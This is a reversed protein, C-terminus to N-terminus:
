CFNFEWVIKTLKNEKFSLNVYGDEIFYPPKGFRDVIKQKSVGIRLDNVSWRPSTAEVKYLGLPRTGGVELYLILGNYRLTRLSNGCPVEGRRIDSNPKGLKRIIQKYGSGVGLGNVDARFVTQATLASSLGFTVTVIMLFRTLSLPIKTM